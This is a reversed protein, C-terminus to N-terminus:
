KRIDFNNYESVYLNGAGDLAVAFPADFRANLGIGNDSGRFGDQGALTTVVGAPTLEQVTTTGVPVYVNGADDVAIGYNPPAPLVAPLTQVVGDPTITRIHQSESSGVYVKGTGDVAIASPIEFQAAAGAGDASGTNGPSGALTTVVGGPAIKRIIDNDLD